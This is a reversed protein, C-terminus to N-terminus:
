KDEKSVEKELAEVEKRARAILEELQKAREESGPQPFATLRYHDSEFGRLADRAILLRDAASLTSYDM